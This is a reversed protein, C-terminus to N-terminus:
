GASRPQVAARTAPERRRRRPDKFRLLPKEVLYYSAAACATAAVATTLTILVYSHPLWENFKIALPLHYLFIGYSVLGLWALPPWALIRRPLGGRDDGFVAPLVFFFAIAAFFVYEYFWTWESYVPPYSTPLGVRTTLVLAAFAAAWALWGHDSVVRIFRPQEREHRGHWASSAVALGMGLAFWLFTGPLTNHFTSGPAWRHTATHGAVSALALVTLAAYEFRAQVFRDRDRLLRAAAIAYFPLVLYFSMEVCLSWAPSLGTVIWGGHLNQIYGYYVWWQHTFVGVLGPWIALVTIAVWYAPVIRLLRRRGYALLHPAARGDMRASVFPRYILFGSIVFFITVGVNLRATFPGLVDNVYAFTTLGATHSALVSLAAFARLSDFLPFRPNGPPPKVVDPVDQVAARM